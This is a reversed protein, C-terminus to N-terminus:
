YDYIKGMKKTEGQVPVSLVENLVPINFQSFTVIVYYFSEGSECKEVGGVIDFHDCVKFICYNYGPDNVFLSSNLNDSVFKGSSSIKTQIGLCRKPLAADYGYEKLNANIANAVATDYTEANEVIEVISNKVRYAKSYTLISVFVAMIVGAVFIVLSLLLSSGLSERM